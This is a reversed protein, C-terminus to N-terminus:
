SNEIRFSLYAVGGRQAYDVDKIIRLSFPLDPDEKDKMLMYSYDRASNDEIAVRVDQGSYELEVGMSGNSSTDFDPGSIIEELVLHLHFLMKPAIDWLEELESMANDLKEIEPLARLM